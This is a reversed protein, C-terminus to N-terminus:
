TGAPLRELEHFFHHVDAYLFPEFCGHISTWPPVWACLAESLAVRLERELGHRAVVVAPKADDYRDILKTAEANASTTRWVDEPVMTSRVEGAIVADIQDQWAEVPHMDLFRDFAIGEDNLM